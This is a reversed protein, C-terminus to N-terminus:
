IAAFQAARQLGFLSAAGAVFLAVRYVQLTEIDFDRLVPRSFPTRLMLVHQQGGSLRWKVAPAGQEQDQVTPCVALPSQAPFHPVFCLRAILV